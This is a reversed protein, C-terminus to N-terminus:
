RAHGGLDQGANAECRRNLAPDIQAKMIGTMEGHREPSCWVQGESWPAMKRLERVKTHTDPVADPLPLDRPDFARTEAGFAQLLREAELTLFRSYSRERLSGYLLLIHPKHTARSAGPLTALDPGRFLNADINPLDRATM